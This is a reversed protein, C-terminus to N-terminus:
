FVLRLVAIAVLIGVTLSAWLPNGMIGVVASAVTTCITIIGQLYIWYTSVM